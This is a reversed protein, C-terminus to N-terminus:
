FEFGLRLTIRPSEEDNEKPIFAGVSFILIDIPAFYIGGGYSYHWNGTKDNDLWVRGYDFSGYCGFTFPLTPNYSSGFKVRLDTNHWLTSKGYFRETRYGRVGLQGGITPMQFFEYGKGFNLGSGVRSALIFNERADLSKYFTLQTNLSTFNKNEKLNATWNADSHFRIGTHPAFFNDVNTFDFIFKAGSYYKTKFIDNSLGTQDSTIYRGSTSEIDSIELVPGFAFSGTNAAFRKKLAPFVKFGTQRVRYYNPDTVTRVTANGMGAYNFAYTPGHYYSDIYFDFKQFANIFDASYHIKFAKTGFAYSGGFRQSSSFPEKKFGYKTMNFNAGLLFGDDPNAGIIPVPLTIDYESDSGRRDYVNFRYLSTRNDKTENGALVTNQKLDDYVLTKKIGASIASSDAFFDNGSGGILRVKIGKHVNGTVVFQDNAGNGYINIEETVLHDFTRNFTPQKVTGDKRIEFIKVLTHQEDIRQVEIREREDTGLVNVHKGIFDYHAKAIELLNDRRAKVSKILHDATLDYAKVPWNLFADEIDKDTLKSQVYKVQQEWQQWDLENLFTRDFLRASWTNWKYNKIQPGYTQLQHLFPMTFGAIGTLFGDYKSFAQDRDRPIPRYLHSGDAQKIDAWVWQDDHRDWDGVLFDLFRTRLAWSADVKHNNNLLMKEILEPTNIIDDPNGFDPNNKWKKGSPREEVLAVGGAFSQNFAALGPQAPIYFLKPNTHYVDIAAALGPIALPAFPHTSLFNDEALYKAATMKNFPFPLLRSVDKTMSRFVYEKGISDRVRLSNTQNGGGQKLPTLGGKYTALDLVPFPYKELYLKRNHEGLMFNHFRGSPKVKNITIPQSSSDSHMEYQAFSIQSDEKVSPLANKIKKQFVMKAKTGDKNVHWFRTWTEGNKYFVLTSFGPNGSVFEAGKGLRVPSVKSGSGSVIFKQGSREIYELAHEHGSAFIFSGNKGTGALLSQRLDRYHKNPSDQRSGITSRLLVGLSGLVPLPIYLKPNLDVLPFIHQRLTSGGGHPGYTYAPHHMAIVVNKNKYKRVMNEFLFTFTARNKITCGENIKYDKDWDALWWQSDIVIIVVNDNLEIAEPGSCDDDPLFYNTFDEGSAKRKNSLYNEIFDEQRKLGEKGWGNWDHNGPIFLPKGKFDDLTELQSVIRYEAIKRKLSDQVAPMGKDYINDGMFLLSTNQTETALRSKLFTLVPAANQPTQNGADGVLYMTHVAELLSDGPQSNWDKAASSYQPKYSSCSSVLILSTLLMSLRICTKMM